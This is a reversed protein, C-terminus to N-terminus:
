HTQTDVHPVDALTLHLKYERATVGPVDALAYRIRESIHQAIILGRVPKGNAVHRKVWRNKLIWERVAINTTTGGLAEVAEKVMKWVTPKIKESM